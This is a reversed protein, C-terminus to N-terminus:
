NVYMNLEFPKEATGRNYIQTHLMKKQKKKNKYLVLDDKKTKGKKPKFFADLFDEAIQDLDLIYGNKRAYEGIEDITSGYTDHYIEYDKKGEKLKEIDKPEDTLNNVATVKLMKGSEDKCVIWDAFNNYKIFELKKNLGEGKQKPANIVFKDGKKLTDKIKKRLKKALATNSAVWGSNGETIEKGKYKIALAWLKDIDAQKNRNYKNVKSKKLIASRMISTAPDQMMIISFKGVSREDVVYIAKGERQMLKLQKKKPKYMFEEKLERVIKAKKFDKTYFDKTNKNGYDDKLKFTHGGTAVQYVIGQIGGGSTKMEVKDGIKPMMTLTYGKIKKENLKELEERIMQRVESKKM